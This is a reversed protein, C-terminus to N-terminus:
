LSFFFSFFFSTQGKAVRMKEKPTASGGGLAMPSTRGGKNQGFSWGGRRKNKSKKLAKKKLFFFFFHCHCPM